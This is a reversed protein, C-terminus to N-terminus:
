VGILKESDASTYQGGAELIFIEDTQHKNQGVFPAM